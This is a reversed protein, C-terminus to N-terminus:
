QTKKEHNAQGKPVVSMFFDPRIICRLALMLPAAMYLLNMWMVPWWADSPIRYTFPTRSHLSGGIHCWQAQTMAGAFLLTWDLMWTCGPTCLGYVCAAMLPLGYFLFVLMMVKPFAVNDKLYPEYHYIYSFCIDHRCDLVVAGRLVTFAMAVLLALTLILDIPRLLLGKMQVAEVKDAPIVPLERPRRLLDVATWVPLLLFLINLWFAPYLSTGYKGIVIGPIFVVQNAIASGAWFLGMSRYPRMCIIARSMQRVMLLQLIFQVIGEWYCMMICYATGLYPEGKQLYFDVFGSIYRDQELANTLGVVCTSALVAFVSTGYFLPDVSKRHLVALHLLVFVSLLSAMAFVLVAGPRCVFEL